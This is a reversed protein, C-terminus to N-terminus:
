LYIKRYAKLLWKRWPLLYYWIRGRSLPKRKGAPTEIAAVRGIIDAASCVEEGELNGDGMLVYAEEGREDREIRVLRHLVYTNRGNAAIARALIIDGCRPSRTLPALIVSDRGGEIYPRMSMGSPTLRVEKEESLLRALEPILIDNEVRMPTFETCLYLLFRM